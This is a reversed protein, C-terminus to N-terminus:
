PLITPGLGFFLFCLYGAFVSGPAMPWLSFLSHRTGGAVADIWRIRGFFSAAKTGGVAADQAVLLALGERVEHVLPGLDLRGEVLFGQVQDALDGYGAPLDLAEV